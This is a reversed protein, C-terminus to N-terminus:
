GLAKPQQSGEPFGFPPQAHGKIPTVVPLEMEWTPTPKKTEGQDSKKGCLSM